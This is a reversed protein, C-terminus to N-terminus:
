WGEDTGFPTECAPSKGPFGCVLPTVMIAQTQWHTCRLHAEASCDPLRGPLTLSRWIPIGGRTGSGRYGAIQRHPRPEDSSYPSVPRCGALAPLGQRRPCPPRRKGTATCFWQRGLSQHGRGSGTRRASRALRGAGASSSPAAAGGLGVPLGSRARRPRSM